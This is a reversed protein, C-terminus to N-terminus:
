SGRNLPDVGTVAFLSGVFFHVRPTVSDNGFIVVYIIYMFCMLSCISKPRWFVGAAGFLGVSESFTYIIYLLFFRDADDLRRCLKFAFRPFDIIIKRIVSAGLRDVLFVHSTDLNQEVVYNLYVVQTVCMFVCCM